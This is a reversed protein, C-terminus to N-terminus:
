AGSIVHSALNQLCATHLFVSRFTKGSLVDTATNRSNFSVLATVPEPYGQLQIVMQVMMLCRRNFCYGHLRVATPNGFPLDSYESNIGGSIVM